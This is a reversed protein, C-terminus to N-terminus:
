KIRRGNSALLLAFAALPITITIGLFVGLVLRDDCTKTATAKKELTCRRECRSVATSCETATIPTTADIPAALLILCLPIM